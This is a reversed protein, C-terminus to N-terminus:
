INKAAYKTCEFHANDKNKEILYTNKKIMGINNVICHQEDIGKKGNHTSLVCQPNHYFPLIKLTQIKKQM